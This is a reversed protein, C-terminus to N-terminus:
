DRIYELSQSRPFVLAQTCEDADALVVRFADAGKPVEMRIDWAERVLSAPRERTM